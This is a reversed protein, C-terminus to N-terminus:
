GKAAAILDEWHQYANDSRLIDFYSYWLVLSPHSNTTILNLMYRMENFTPYTSCIPSPSCSQNHYQLRNFAQLVMASQKGNQNAITQVVQAIAGTDNISENQAGIPYFDVALVDAANIFPVLNAKATNASSSSQVILRPHSPDLTRIMDVLAQLKMQEYAPVEDGVYYGWTAPLDKVLDIVYNIFRAATSCKCSLALDPFTQLIDGQDRLVPYDINWIIKIGLTAAKHAYLLEQQASGYLQNYNLVLAFGAVAIQQLREVCTNGRTLSCEEYVGQNKFHFPSIIVGPSVTKLTPDAKKDASSCASLVVTLLLLGLVLTNMWTGKPEKYAQTM